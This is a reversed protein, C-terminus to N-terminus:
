LGGLLTKDFLGLSKVACDHIFAGRLNDSASAVETNHVGSLAPNARDANRAYYACVKFAAFGLEAACAADTASADEKTLHPKVVVDYFWRGTKREVNALEARVAEAEKPGFLWLRRHLEKITALAALARERVFAARAYDVYNTTM